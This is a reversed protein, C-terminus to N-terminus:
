IYEKILRLLTDAEFPKPIFKDAGFSESNKEANPNASMMIVPIPNTAKNDKLKRCIIRGDAGSLLVDLLILNPKFMDVQKYTEKGDSLLKVNYGEEELLLSLPELIDQDDDVVLIKKDM